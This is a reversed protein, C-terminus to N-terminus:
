CRQMILTHFLATKLHPTETPEQQIETVLASVDYGAIAEAPLGAQGFIPTDITGPSLVNVRIKRAM